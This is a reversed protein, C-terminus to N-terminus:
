RLKIWIYYLFYCSFIGAALWPASDFPFLGSRVLWFFLSAIAVTVGFEMLISWISNLLKNKRLYDIVFNSLAFSSILPLAGLELAGLWFESPQLPFILFRIILYLLFTLGILVLNLIINRKIYSSIIGGIGGLIVAIMTSIMIYINISAVISNM